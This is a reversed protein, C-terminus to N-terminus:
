LIINDLIAWIELHDPHDRNLNKCAYYLIIIKTDYTGCKEEAAQRGLTLLCELVVEQFNAYEETSTSQTLDIKNAVSLIMPIDKWNWDDLNRLLNNRTLKM